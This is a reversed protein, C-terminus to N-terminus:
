PKREDAGLDPAGQDHAQGDLDVGAGTVSAGKDIANAAGATLHFDKGANVLYALPTSQLNHDVTGQAGDRQTIKHTLNNQIVAFTEAFRYDISSFFKTAGSGHLVTNHFVQPQKAIHLEIGTDYYAHNAWIVNNRIVGDYHALKAGGYPKDPYARDGIGGGLGFGVGRACDIITNNEVVTDRAGKWFHIAHEALGGNDCYIGEFRNNRVVWKWGAHVDIGGTYCGGCCSEVKPRGAATMVFESCEVRGEDIYGPTSGNPNVTIFQEGNDILRAGYVVLNKVDQGAGPPYAHIAHDVARTLTVHAITVNSASVAVLENVAYKGDIIVKSADNSASRLGVGAKALQLTSTIAYTGDALVLTSGAAAGMVMSHLNGADSPKANIVTGTPAPLAPCALSAGGGGGTGGGGTGSGGTGSGGTGSGGTGSGGTGSGGTGSGSSGGAGGGGSASGGSGASGGSSAGGTSSSAGSDDDSGCAALGLALFGFAVIRM